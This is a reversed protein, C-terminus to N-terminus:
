VLPKELQDFLNIEEEKQNAAKHMAGLLMTITLIFCLAAIAVVVPSDFKLKM